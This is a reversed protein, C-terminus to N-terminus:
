LLGAVINVFMALIATNFAFAILGQVLALRRIPRASIQVDSVQCTMGIVFSLYAFDLYDPSGKGPFILGGAVADRPGSKAGTYYRHAYRLAFLTHVLTWSLIVDGVALCIHGIKQHLSIVRIPGLMLGVAFLSAVAAVVIGAFLLSTSTDEQEATRQVEYPDQTSLVIWALGVSSLAFADWGAIIRLSLGSKGSWVLAVILGFIFAAAIRVHPNLFRYSRRSASAIPSTM